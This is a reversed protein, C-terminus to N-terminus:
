SSTAYNFDFVQNISSGQEHISPNEYDKNTKAYNYKGMCM